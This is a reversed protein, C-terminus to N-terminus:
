SIRFATLAGFGGGTRLFGQLDYFPASEVLSIRVSSILVEQICM